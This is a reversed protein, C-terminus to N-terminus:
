TTFEIRVEKTGSKNVMLEGDLQKALINVLKLGLNEGMESDFNEPLPVGDDQVSLVYKGDAARFDVYITGAAGDPFAHKFANTLLENMVIGCPVAHVIDLLSDDVCATIQIRGKPNYFVSLEHILSQIYINMEVQSLSDSKYLDEHVLAMSFIRNRSEILAEKVDKAEVVQDAQLSLLSAIVNLNNKVRHHMERLLVDKEKLAERLAQERQMVSAHMQEFGNRLLELETFSIRSKAPFDPLQEFQEGAQVEKVFATFVALPQVIQQHFQYNTMSILLVMMGLILLFVMSLAYIVKEFLVFAEQAILVKWSNQQLNAASMLHLVGHYSAIMSSVHSDNLNQLVELQGINEQHEVLNMDPSALLNGHQDTVFVVGGKLEYALDTAFDKLHKLNLELLLQRGYFTQRLMGVVVQESQVSYYPPTIGVPISEAIQFLLGSFDTQFTEKPPVTEVVRGFEDLLFMRNYLRKNIVFRSMSQSFQKVTVSTSAAFALDEEAQSFFTDLYMAAIQVTKQQQEEISAKATYLWVAIGILLLLAGPLALWTIFFRKIYRSLPRIPMTMIINFFILYNM